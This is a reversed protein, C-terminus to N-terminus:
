GLLKLLVAVTLAINVGIMWQLLLMRGDLSSLRGEYNAVEEAAKRANDESTGGERLADYLSAMMLSM